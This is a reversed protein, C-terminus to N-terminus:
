KSFKRIIEEYKDSIAALVLDGTQRTIPHFVQIRKGNPLTTAPYVIRISGNPTSHLGLNGVYFRSDLVFSAWGVLGDVPKVPFISVESINAVNQM